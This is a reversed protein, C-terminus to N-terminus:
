CGPGGRITAHEKHWAVTQRLGDELPTRVRWGLRVYTAAADAVRVQEGPRDPLAGFAPAVNSGVFRVIHEVVTRVPVLSGSGLDVTAGEVGPRESLLLLGGVVDDVYIWDVLREGSTLKPAEGKLLSSASALRCLRLSPSM